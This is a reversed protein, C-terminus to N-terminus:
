RIDKLLVVVHEPRKLDPSIDSCNLPCFEHCDEISFGPKNNNIHRSFEKMVTRMQETESKTLNTQGNHTGYHLPCSFQCTYGDMWSHFRDSYFKGIERKRSERVQLKASALLPDLDSSRLLFILQTIVIDQINSTQVHFLFLKICLRNIQHGVSFRCYTDLFDEAVALTGTVEFIDIQTLVATMTNSDLKTGQLANLFVQQEKNKQMIARTQVQVENVVRQVDLLLSNEMQNRFQEGLDDFMRSMQGGLINQRQNSMQEAFDFGSEIQYRTNVNDLTIMTSQADLKQVINDNGDIILFELHRTQGDIADTVVRRTVTHGQTVHFRTAKHEIGIKNMQQEHIDIMMQRTVKFEEGIYESQKEIMDGIIEPISPGSFGPIFSLVANFVGTLAGVSAGVPGMFSAISGITTLIGSAILLGDDIGFQKITTGINLIANDVKQISEVGGARAFRGVKDLGKLIFRRKTRHKQVAKVSKLTTKASKVMIDPNEQLQLAGVKNTIGILIDKTVPDLRTQKIVRTQKNAWVEHDAASTKELSQLVNATIGTNGHGQVQRYTEVKQKLELASCYKL